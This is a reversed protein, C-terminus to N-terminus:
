NKTLSLYQKQAKLYKVQYIYKTGSNKEPIKSELEEVYGSMLKPVAPLTDELSEESKLGGKTVTWMRVRVGKGSGEAAVITTEPQAVERQAWEEEEEEEGSTWHVEYREGEAGTGAWKLSAAFSLKEDGINFGWSCSLQTPPAPRTCFNLFTEAVEKGAFITSVEVKYETGPQHSM